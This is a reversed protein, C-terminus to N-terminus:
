TTNLLTQLARVVELGPFGFKNNLTDGLLAEVM